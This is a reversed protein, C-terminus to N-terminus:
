RGAQQGICTATALRGPHLPRVRPAHRRPTPTSGDAFTGRTGSTRTRHQADYLADATPRAAAFENRYVAAQVPALGVGPVRLNNLETM